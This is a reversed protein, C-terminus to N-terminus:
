AQAPTRSASASMNVRTCIRRCAAPMRSISQNWDVSLISGSMICTANTGLNMLIQYIQSANARVPPIGPELFKRIAVNAPVTANLFALVDEVIPPLLVTEFTTEQKRSFFLIQRVVDKARATAGVIERFSTRVTEEKAAEALGLEANTGIMALINNFDHAVGGALTGLAEFKQAELLQDRLSRHEEEALVRDTIVESYVTIVGIEDNAKM